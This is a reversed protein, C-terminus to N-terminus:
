MRWQRLRVLVSSTLVSQKCEFRLARSGVEINITYSELASYYIPVHTLIDCLKPRSHGGM